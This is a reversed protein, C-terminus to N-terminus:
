EGFLDKHARKRERDIQERTAGPRSTIDEIFALAVEGERYFDHEARAVFIPSSRTSSPM